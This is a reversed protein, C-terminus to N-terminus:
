MLDVTSKILWVLFDDYSKHNKALAKLDNLANDINAESFKEPRERMYNLTFDDAKILQFRYVSLPM